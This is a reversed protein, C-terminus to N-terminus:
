IDCRFETLEGHFWPFDYNNWPPDFKCNFARGWNSSVHCLDELSMEFKRIKSRYSSVPQRIWSIKLSRNGIEFVVLGFVGENILILPFEVSSIFFSGGIIYYGPVTVVM